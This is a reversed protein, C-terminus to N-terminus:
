YVDKEYRGEEKMQELYAKAEEITKKGYQEIIHLLANEVDVSMPDKKGCIYFSAGGIIWEYLSEGHELMRHQVYIKEKQDRSFAVNIKTLVGTENWNQMETQYLFDSAFHQEGFFLWNRGTAGTADREALFSRFAAIGTGPGVMIIDKNDAPLRFRKNPQVFFNQKGNVKLKSLYDSCLGFRKQGDKEYVDKAVIIHVEGEHAKPSSAITYLRPSIANLGVLIEEFQSPVKVPYNRVLDLLDYRGAPIDHGTADAYQKVLRETLHIINIKRKLLEYITFKEKKFELSKNGDVNTKAIIDTVIQSDNEPVIGISDGCTYEIGEAEIEIHYTEKNSGRDNLDINKTVIGTYAAKGVKKAAPTAHGNASAAPAAAPKENLAALVKDFWGNADAEYEVDCKQIPVIRKGGLKEFKQDINEGVNCFLPYSTDGLALVSYKMKAVSFNGAEIHDYFKKAADPAEGDGHTSMLVFFYEEKPLDTLKYQDAGFVKANIGNKKAKAAFQTALAKSNGTETGYVITIRNVSPTGAAVAVGNTQTHTSVVGNLYGNLWLLEEKSATSILDQVIKLKAEPLM